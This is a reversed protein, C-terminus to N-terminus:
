KEKVDLCVMRTLDRVILRGAALAMPGWSEHGEELVQVEGLLRFGETTAEALSLHAHDDMAFIFGNAM